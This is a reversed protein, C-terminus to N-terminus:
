AFWLTIMNPVLVLGTGIMKLATITDGGFAVGYVYSMFVGFYSLSSYLTTDLRTMSYFRLLYGVLGIVLNIGMSASFTATSFTPNIIDQFFWLFFVFAGLSYSLFMHNWHNTTKIRRVLFYIMAETLAALLIMVIGEYMFNEKVDASKKFLPKPTKPPKISSTTTEFSESDSKQTKSSSLLYVGVLSLLMWYQFPAGSLLLIFIPYTYFLVYAIGSELLQFGKYSTYVHVLTVLSLLLANPTVLNKYLFSYDVFCLSVLSYSICRSAVQLFLPLNIYKVFIPYFSLLSESLVKSFIGLIM